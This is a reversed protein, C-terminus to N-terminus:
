MPSSNAAHSSLKGGGADFIHFPKIHGLEPHFSDKSNLNLVEGGKYDHIVFPIIEKRLELLDVRPYLRSEQNGWCIPLRSKQQILSPLELLPLAHRLLQCIRM